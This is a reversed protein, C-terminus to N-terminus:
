FVYYGTLQRSTRGTKDGRNAMAHIQFVKLNAIFQYRTLTELSPILNYNPAVWKWGM